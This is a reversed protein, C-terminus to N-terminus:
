RRGEECQRVPFGQNAGHQQAREARGLLQEIHAITESCREDLAYASLTVPSVSLETYLSVIIDQLAFQTDPLQLPDLHVDFPLVPVHVHLDIKALFVRALKVLLDGHITEDPKRHLFYYALNDIPGRDLLLVEPADSPLVESLASWQGLMIAEYIAIGHKAVIEYPSGYGLLPVLTRTLENRVQWGPRNKRITEILTTKGAGHSGSIAVIM